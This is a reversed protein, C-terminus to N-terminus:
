AAVAAPSPQKVATRNALRIGFQIAPRELAHYLVVPLTVIMILFLTWSHFVGLALWICFSHGLYIGYSYTAINASLIKLPRWSM